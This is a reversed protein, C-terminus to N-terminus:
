QVFCENECLYDCSVIIVQVRLEEGRVSPTPLQLKVEVLNAFRSQRDHLPSALMSEGYLKIYAVALADSGAM